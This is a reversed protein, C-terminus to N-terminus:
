LMDGYLLFWAGVMMGLWVHVANYGCICVYGNIYAYM